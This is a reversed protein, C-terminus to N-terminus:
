QTSHIAAIIRTAREEFDRTWPLRIYAIDTGIRFPIFRDRPHWGAARVAQRPVSFIFENGQVRLTRPEYYEIEEAGRDM